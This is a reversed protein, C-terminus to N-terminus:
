TASVMHHGIFLGTPDYQAKVAQLRAYNEGWFATQWDPEFYDAEASYSGLSTIGAHLAAMADTVRQAQHRARTIDPERGSIGPYAPPGQAASIALAFAKRAGPHMATEAAEARVEESAGFLGKNTHLSVRWHRSADFLAQALRPRQNPDLLDGGLWSSKYAHLIQGVQGADGSWFVRAPDAGQQSDSTVIGPLDLLFQPDWFARGPVALVTPTEFTYDDPSARLEQWFPTWIAEVETQSLGQFLMSLALVNDPRVIIQEGWNPNCLAGAYFGMMMEILRHYAQDSSARIEGFIAGITHPMAHTRLTLRTVVGFTGGGGGRLAFFLEPEQMANVVRVQGDATVIEAELLSGAALGFGKSFSGFGGSQILGAVGVTLCGGGQVYRDAGAGVQRYVDGWMAGAGVSVAPVPAAHGGQPVFADHVEIARMRRTWVLLSNEANSHGKYSHGGGKVVLRVGQERCFDIAAAIDEASEALLVRQSPRSMWADVWGFTQTLGPHDGLFYPNRAAAFFDACAASSPDATCAELPWDVPQLKDGVQAALAPWDVPDDTQVAQEGRSPLVNALTVAGATATVLFDRRKM